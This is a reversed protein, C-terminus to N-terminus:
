LAACAGISIVTYGIGHAGAKAVAALDMGGGLGIVAAPLLRRTLWRTRTPSPNGLTLAVVVGAVLAAAPPIGPLCSLGFALVLAAWGFRQLWPARAPTPANGDKPVALTKGPSADARARPPAKVQPKPPECVDVDQMPQLANKM